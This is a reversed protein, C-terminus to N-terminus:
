VQIRIKGTLLQQMLGKKQKELLELEQKLYTIEKDMCSLYGVIENQVNIPPIPFKFQLFADVKVASREVLTGEVKTGYFSIMESTTLFYGFFDINYKSEDEIYLTEYIPSLLVDHKNKNVAIAGYKLNAPNYVLDNEKSKKYKKEGNVLFKRNYRESKPTVGKDITLSYLMLEVSEYDKENRRSFVEKLKTKVWPENGRSYEFRKLRQIVAKKRMEKLNINHKKLGILETLSYLIKAILEQEDKMPIPLLIEKLNSEYLHVVSHGQGLQYGQRFFIDSNLLFSLYLKNIEGNSKYILIDGGAYADEDIMYMSAKGIEKRTEGSTPFLIDGYSVKMPNTTSEPHFYTTPKTIQGDYTTYLQGYTIAIDGNQTLESKSIGKGRAFDGFDSLKILDFDKNISELMKQIRKPITTEM